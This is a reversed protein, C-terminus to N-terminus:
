EDDGGACDPCHHEDYEKEWGEKKIIKEAVRVSNQEIIAERECETGDCQIIVQKTWTM